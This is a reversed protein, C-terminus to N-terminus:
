SHNYPEPLESIGAQFTYGLWNETRTILIWSEFMRGVTPQCVATWIEVIITSIYQKYAQTHPLAKIHPQVFAQQM